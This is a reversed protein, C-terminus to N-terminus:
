KCVVLYAKKGIHESPAYVVAGTSSKVIERKIFGIIQNDLLELKGKNIKLIRM